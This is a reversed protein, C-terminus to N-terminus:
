SPHIPRPTPACRDRHHNRSRAPAGQYVFGPHHHCANLLRTILMPLAFGACLLSGTIECGGPLRISALSHGSIASHGCRHGTSSRSTAKPRAGQQVSERGEQPIQECGLQDALRQHAVAIMQSHEAAFEHARRYWSGCRRFCNGAM